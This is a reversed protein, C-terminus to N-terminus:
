EEQLSSLLSSWSVLRLWFPTFGMNVVEDILHIWSYAMELQTMKTWSTGVMQGEVMHEMLGIRRDIVLEQCDM